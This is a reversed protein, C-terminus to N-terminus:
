WQFDTGQNIKLSEEASLTKMYRLTMAASSHRLQDQTAKPNGTKKLRELAGSHRLVHVAGVGDPKRIGAAKMAGQVIQFARSRTIPFIMTDPKIGQQYCYAMLESVLSSSVAVKGPKHGKGIISVAYGDDSKTIDCPRISLAESARFCGDFLTKILLANREGDRGRGAVIAMLRVDGESLHPVYGAAYDKGQRIALVKSSNNLKGNDQVVLAKTDQTGNIM